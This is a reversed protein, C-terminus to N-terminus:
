GDMYLYSYQDPLYLRWTIKSMPVEMIEASEVRFGGFTGFDMGVRSQYLIRLTFERGANGNKGLM